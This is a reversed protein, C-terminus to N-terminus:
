QIDNNMFISQHLGNNVLCFNIRYLSFLVFKILIFIKMHSFFDFYCDRSLFGDLSLETGHGPLTIWNMNKHEEGPRQHTQAAAGTTNQDPSLLLYFSSLWFTRTAILSQFLASDILPVTPCSVLVRAAATQWVWRLRHTHNRDETSRALANARVTHTEPRSAFDM